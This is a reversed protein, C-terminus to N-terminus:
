PSTFTVEIKWRAILDDKPGVKLNAVHLPLEIRRTGLAAGRAAKIEMLSTKGAYIVTEEPVAVESEGGVGGLIFNLPSRNFIQLLVSHGLVMVVKPNRIEVSKDFIRGLWAKSGFLMNRSCVATRRALLGDHLAQESRDTALVLTMPPHEDAAPDFELSMPDHADSNGLITLTKREAWRYAIPDFEEGNVIEIGQLWGRTFAEEIEDYWVTQHDPQRWGPHNWFVFAGQAKAVRLAERYDDARLAIVDKLFLANLHGPPDDRTIETGRILIIGLEDAARRAVEYSRNLNTSVDERHPLLEIHDSLAIADLGERWAEEVRVTPWVLGDSFVTHIHLDCKLVVYGPLPPFDLEARVRKQAGLVNSCLLGTLGFMGVFWWPWALSFHNCM